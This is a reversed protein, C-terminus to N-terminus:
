GAPMATATTGTAGASQGSAGLLADLVNALTSLEATDAADLESMGPLREALASLIEVRKISDIGLDAELQMDMDLMEPPYGTKDAVVALLEAKLDPASGTSAGNSAAGGSPAPSPAAGQATAATTTAGSAAGGSAAGDLRLLVDRLTHLDATEAADLEPLQPMQEALASLIEVRKISDIGLDAELHMEMDLMDPPYGTKDSVVALLMSRVDSGGAATIPPAAMPAPAAPASRVPVPTPAAPAAAQVAVPMAQVPAPAPPAIPQIALPATLRAPASSLPVARQAREPLPPPAVGTVLSQLGAMARESSQLFAMHAQAMTQQWAAHAEATQRQTEAFTAIWEDRQSGNHQGSM